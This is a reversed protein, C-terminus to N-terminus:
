RRKKWPTQADVGDKPLANAFQDEDGLQQKLSALETKLKAVTEQQATVEYLNRLEHPDKTLDFLEWADKKWYHILSIRRPASASIPARTTIGRTTITATISRRQALGGANAACAAARPQPGAHGGPGARRRSGSLDARFGYQDGHCRENAIQRRDRGALARPVPDRLSEEYMFRKDYMGHEGLFFGNDSTYIVVTNERLGNAELWDLLRGVNDDVSQVCALYDQMYRQYKWKVLEDGTM